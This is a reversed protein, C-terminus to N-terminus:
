LQTKTDRSHLSPECLSESMQPKSMTKYGDSFDTSSFGAEEPTTESASGITEDPVTKTWKPERMLHLLLFLKKLKLVSFTKMMQYKM